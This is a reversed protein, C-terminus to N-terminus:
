KTTKEGLDQSKWHLRPINGKKRQVMVKKGSKNELINVVNKTYNYPKLLFIAIDLLITNIYHLFDSKKWGVGGCFTLFRLLCFFLLGGRFELLDVGECFIQCSGCQIYRYVKKHKHANYSDSM